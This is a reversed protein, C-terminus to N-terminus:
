LLNKPLSLCKLISVSGYSGSSFTDCAFLKGLSDLEYMLKVIVMTSLAFPQWIITKGTSITIFRITVWFDLRCYFIMSKVRVFCVLLLFAM